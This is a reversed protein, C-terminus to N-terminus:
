IGQPKCLLGTHMSQIDKSTYFLMLNTYKSALIGGTTDSSGSNDQYM